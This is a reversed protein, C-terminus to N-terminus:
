KSEELYEYTDQIIFCVTTDSISYNEYFWEENKDAVDNFRALVDFSFGIIHYEYMLNAFDSFSNRVTYAPDVILIDIYGTDFDEPCVELYEGLNSEGYLLAIFGEQKYFLAITYFGKDGFIETGVAKTWIEAPPGYQLFLYSLSWRYGTRIAFLEDNRFFYCEYRENETYEEHKYCYREIDGDKIDAFVLNEDFWSLANDKSISGVQIFGGYCPFSCGGNTMRLNEFWEVASNIKPFLTPTVTFKLRTTPSITPTMFSPTSTDIKTMEALTTYTPTENAEPTKSDISQNCASLFACVIAVATFIFLILRKKM